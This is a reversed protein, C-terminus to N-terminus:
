KSMLFIDIYNKNGQILIIIIKPNNQLNFLSIFLYVRPFCKAYLLSALFRSEKGEKEQKIWLDYKQSNM